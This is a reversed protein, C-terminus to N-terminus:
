LLADRDEIAAGVAGITGRLKSRRVRVPRLGVFHHQEARALVNEGASGDFTPEIGCSENEDVPRM